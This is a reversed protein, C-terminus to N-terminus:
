ASTRCCGSRREASGEWGLPGLPAIACSGAMYHTRQDWKGTRVLQDKAHMHHTLAIMWGVTAEAVSQDVGGAATIIVAVDAATCAAVDVLDYGVGFRGIALLRESSAVSAATVAPTLVIM